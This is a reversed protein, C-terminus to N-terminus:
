LEKKIKIIKAFVEKAYKVQYTDSKKIKEILFDFNIIIKRTTISLYRTLAMGIQTKDYHGQEYGILLLNMIVIDSKKQRGLNHLMLLFLDAYTSEDLYVKFLKKSYYNLLFEMSINDISDIRKKRIKNQYENSSDVAINRVYQDQHYMKKITDKLFLVKSENHSDKYYVHYISDLNNCLNLIKEFRIDKSYKRSLSYCM